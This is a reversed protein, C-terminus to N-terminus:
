FAGKELWESLDAGRHQLARFFYVLSDSNDPSRGIKEKVSKIKNDDENGPSKEKPTIKYKMSDSQPFIKEHARIQRRLEADPPILFVMPRDIKSVDGETSRDYTWRGQPNLRAGLEGYSEARMNWYTAPDVESKSNGNIHIVRIGRAEMAQAIPEGLGDCDIGVPIGGHTITIGYNAATKIVWEVLEKVNKSRFEHQSRVGRFGGATLTSYDGEASLAVDLGFAQVPHWKNLVARLREAGEHYQSRNWAKQFRQWLRGPAILWQGYIVQRDPDEQPFRGHAYCAVFDENPNQCLGMYQDFCTQGPIIPKCKKFDEDTLKEGPNYKRDDITIGGPPAVPRSLCRRRVNLMQEGDVTILRRWGHPGLVTQTADPDEVGEHFADFFAGGTTRPNALGMFKTAQTESLGYRDDPVATAEDFLFLVHESHVGAFGEPKMPNACSISHQPNLPDVIVESRVVARPPFRMKRFWKGVESLMVGVATEYKDRTIVVRADAFLDFYACVGIGAAGGKGCGTNGKVWVERILPDALSRLMDIQFDDLVIENGWQIRVYPLPDGKLFDRRALELKAAFALEKLSDHNIQGIQNVQDVRNVLSDIAQPLTAIGM